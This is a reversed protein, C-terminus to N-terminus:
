EIVELEPDELMTVPTGDDKVLWVEYKYPKAKPTPRTATAKIIKDDLPEPPELPSDHGGKPKLMLKRDKLCAAAADSPDIKWSVKGNKKVRGQPPCTRTTCNGMDDLDVFIVSRHENTAPSAAKSRTRRSSLVYVATGAAAAAAIVATIVPPAPNRV